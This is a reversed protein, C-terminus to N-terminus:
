KLAWRLFLLYAVLSITAPVSALEWPSPVNLWWFVLTWLAEGGGLVAVVSLWYERVSM